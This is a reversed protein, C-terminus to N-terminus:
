QLKQGSPYRIEAAFTGAVYSRSNDPLCLYIRGPLLDKSIQDFKLKMVYGNTFTQSVQLDGERWRILVRPPTSSANTTVDLQYGGLERANTEPLFLVYALDPQSSAGQRLVLVPGQLVSREVIFNKRHIRGAAPTNPWSADSLDTRWLGTASHDGVGAPLTIPTTSLPANGGYQVRVFFAIGIVSLAAATAIFMPIPSRPGRVPPGQSTPPPPQPPRIYQTASLIYKSDARPAQPVIIRQFCTPCEIQAGAGSSDAAIHQGCVPCTFKFESM